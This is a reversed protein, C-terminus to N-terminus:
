FFSFLLFFKKKQSSMKSAKEAKIEKIPCSYVPFLPSFSLSPVWCLAVPPISGTAVAALVFGRNIPHGTARNTSGDLINIWLSIIASNFKDIVNKSTKDM